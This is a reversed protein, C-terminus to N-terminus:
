GGRSPQDLRVKADGGDMHVTIEATGAVVPGVSGRGVGGRLSGTGCAETIGVGREHVSCPSPM